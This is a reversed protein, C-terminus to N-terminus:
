LEPMYLVRSRRACYQRCEPSSDHVFGCWGSFGTLRPSLRDPCRWGVSRRVVDDVWWSRSRHTKTPVSGKKAVRTIKEVAEMVVRHRIEFVSAASACGSSSVQASASRNNTSLDGEDGSPPHRERIGRYEGRDTQDHSSTPSRRQTGQRLRDLRTPHHGPRLRQRRVLALQYRPAAFLYAWDGNLGRCLNRGIVYHPSPRRTVLQCFLISEALEVSHQM